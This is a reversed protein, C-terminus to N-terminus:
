HLLADAPDTVHHVAAAADEAGLSIGGGAHHLLEYLGVGEAAAAMLAGALSSKSERLELTELAAPAQDDLELGLERAAGAPDRRFRARFDADSLVREILRAIDDM